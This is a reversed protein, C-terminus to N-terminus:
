FNIKKLIEWGHDPAKIVAFHGGHDAGEFGALVARKARVTKDSM